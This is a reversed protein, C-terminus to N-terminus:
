HFTCPQAVPFSLSLVTRTMSQGKVPLEENAAMTSSAGLLRLLLLLPSDAFPDANGGQM